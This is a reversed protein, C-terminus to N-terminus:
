IAAKYNFETQHRANLRSMKPVRPKPKTEVIRELHKLFRRSLFDLTSELLKGAALFLSHLKRKLSDLSVNRNIQYPNEKQQL